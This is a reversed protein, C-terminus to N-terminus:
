LIDFGTGTQAKYAELSSLALANQNLFDSRAAEKKSM